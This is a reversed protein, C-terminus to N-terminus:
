VTSFYQDLDFMKYKLIDLTRNSIGIRELLDQDNKVFYSEINKNLFKYNKCFFGLEVENFYKNLWLFDRSSFYNLNMWVRPDYFRYLVKKGDLEYVLNEKLHNVIDPERTPFSKFKFLFFPFYNNEIKEKDFELIENKLEADINNLHILYPFVHQINKAYDPALSILSSELDYFYDANLNPDIIAYDYEIMKESEYPILLM